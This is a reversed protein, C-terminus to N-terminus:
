TLLNTYNSLALGLHYELDVIADSNDLVYKCRLKNYRRALVLGARVGWVKM